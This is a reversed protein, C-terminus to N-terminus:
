PPPFEMGEPIEIWQRIRDDQPAVFSGRRRVRFEGVITPHARKLVKVIEGDARGGAEIRLVRVLVRDGHMAQQASDPPIYIDGIIGEIPREAVLFGYGDRHMHLRGVAFDRTRAPATYHGPRLEILDGRAALRALASELEVRAQGKSGTERVLQKFNARAHPQAAIHALLAADTMSIHLAIPAEM